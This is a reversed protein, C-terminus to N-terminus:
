PSIEVCPLPKNKFYNTSVNKVSRSSIREQVLLQPKSALTGLMPISLGKPLLFSQLMEWLSDAESRMQLPKGGGAGWQVCRLVCCCCTNFPDALM